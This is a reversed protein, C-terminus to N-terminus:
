LRKPWTHKLKKVTKLYKGLMGTTYKIIYKQNEGMYFDVHSTIFNQIVANKLGVNTLGEVAYLLKLDTQYIYMEFYVNVIEM